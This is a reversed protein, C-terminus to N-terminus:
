MHLQRGAQEVEGHTAGSRVGDGFRNQELGFAKDRPKTSDPSGVVIALFSLAQDTPPIENWLGKMM